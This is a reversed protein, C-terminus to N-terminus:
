PRVSRLFDAWRFRRVPAVSSKGSALPERAAGIGASVRGSPPGPAEAPTALVLGSYHKQVFIVLCPLSCFGYEEAEEEETEILSLGVTDPKEARCQDCHICEDEADLFTPIV